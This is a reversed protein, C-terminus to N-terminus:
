RHQRMDNKQLIAGNLEMEYSLPSLNFSCSPTITFAHSNPQFGRQNVSGWHYLRYLPSLLWYRGSSDRANFISNTFHRGSGWGPSLSLFSSKNSINLLMNLPECGSVTLGSVCIWTQRPSYLGSVTENEKTYFGQPELINPSNNLSVSLQIRHITIKLLFPGEM